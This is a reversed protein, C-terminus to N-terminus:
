NSLLGSLQPYIDFVKLKEFEEYLRYLIGVSLLIGTGTGLAGTLDAVGALFGVSASSVIILPGIYKELVKEVLRPDRRYGPIQLGSKNFQEAVSKSDMGSMEAWFMGFFISVLMLFSVYIIAHVWEPINFVPTTATLFLDFNMTHVGGPGYTFFLFHPTLYYLFGDDLYGNANVHGLYNVINQEGLMWNQDTLTTIIPASFIQINLLLASAFIVPINSVYFFKLPLKNQWGRVVEYAIPIEVKMGEAYVVILFVIITFVFPLLILLASPIADAGGGLLTELIGNESFLLASLGGIIALSVGAAIFLSIGSGIGYRSVLEDLYYLIISAFAVQIIVLVLIILEDNILISSGGYGGHIFLSAELFALIVALAKQAEYFKRKEAPISLDIRIFGAGKFLQLFISALVIPGIGVTLLSGIKSATIIQLFDISHTKPNVGFATTNFMVFFILLAGITWMIREKIPPPQDPVKVEPLHRALSALPDIINM